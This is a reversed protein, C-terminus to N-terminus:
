IEQTRTPGWGPADATPRTAEHTAEADVASERGAHTVAWKLALGGALSLLSRVITSARKRPVTKPSAVRLIMPLVLGAGVAGLWFHNSYRGETLPRAAGGSTQVYAALAAGECIAAATEIKELVSLARENGGRGAALMLSLAAAGTSISSCAFLAGLVRTRSWVPTSTSSLLVGPYSLMTVAFPLGTVGLVRSPILKSASKLPEVALPGDGMLQRTALMGSHLGYGTLAWAGLNMPSTPKFVRLMHHFRSPRGLDAILLPPCPLLAALSTYYGARALSRYREGGAFQALSALLFSSASVGELFFYLAIEWRWKPKKLIPVGYYSAAAGAQGTPTRHETAYRVIDSAPTMTPLWEVADADRSKVDVSTRTEATM